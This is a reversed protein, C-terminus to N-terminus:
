VELPRHRRKGSKLEFRIADDGKHAPTVSTQRITVTRTGASDQQVNTIAFNGATIVEKEGPKTTLGDVPLGRAGPELKFVVAYQRDEATPKTPTPDAPGAGGVAFDKAVALSRTFSSPNLDLSAGVVFPPKNPDDLRLRGAKPNYEQDWTASGRFLPANIKPAHQMYNALQRGEAGSTMGSNNGTTWKDIFAAYKAHEPSQAKWAAVIKPNTSTPVTSLVHSLSSGGSSGGSDGGGGGSDFRGHDDRPQDPSYKKEVPHLDLEDLSWALIRPDRTATM